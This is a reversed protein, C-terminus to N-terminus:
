APAAPGRRPCGCRAARRVPDPDAVADVARQVVHEVQRGRHARDHDAPDLDQGSMFMTSRRRGCSPWILMSISPRLTSMRTEVVATMSPSFTTSRSSSLLRGSNRSACSPMGSPCPRGSSSAAARATRCPSRRRGSRCRCSSWATRSARALDVAGLAVHHRDLVRDLVPDRRDVLDLDVLLGADGEGAAQARDQALVRVDDQDALDAVHLGGPDGDLRREGAVEHQGRQVGGVGGAARCRSSSMPM